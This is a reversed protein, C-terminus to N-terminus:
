KDKKILKYLNYIDSNIENVIIKNKPYIKNFFNSISLSGAFLDYIHTENDVDHYKNIIELLYDKNGSYNNLIVQTNKKNTKNKIYIKNIVKEYSEIDLHINTKEYLFEIFENIEDEKLEYLKNFTLRTKYCLIIIDKELINKGKLKKIFTYCKKVKNYIHSKNYLIKDYIDLSYRIYELFNTEQTKINKELTYNIYKYFIYYFEVIIKINIMNADNTFTNINNINVMIEANDIEPLLKNDFEYYSKKLREIRSCINKTSNKENNEPICFDKDKKPSSNSKCHLCTYDDTIKETKEKEKYKMQLNAYEQELKKYELFLNNFLLKYNKKRKRKEDIM